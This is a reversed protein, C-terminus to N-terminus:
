HSIDSTVESDETNKATLELGNYRNMAEQVGEKMVVEAADAAHHIVEALLELEDERFRSLVWREAPWGEPSRGIGVKLRAFNPGLRLAIDAVGKQGGHGGGRKVRLRGLPLDLDDHVVLMQEPTLRTKTAYSQVAQGSLNMFTLPKILKVGDITTEDALRTSRFSVGARRALEDVILFGANHRTNVYKPGPNGLGAVLKIHPM